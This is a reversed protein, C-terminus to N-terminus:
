VFLSPLLYLHLAAAWRSLGVAGRFGFWREAVLGVLPAGM